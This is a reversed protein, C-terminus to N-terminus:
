MHRGPYDLLDFPMEIPAQGIRAHALTPSAPHREQAGCVRKRSPWSGAKGGPRCCKDSIAPWFVVYRGIQRVSKTNVDIVQVFLRPTSIGIESVGGFLRPPRDM